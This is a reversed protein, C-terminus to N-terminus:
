FKSVVPIIEDGFVEMEAVTEGINIPSGLWDFTGIHLGVRM